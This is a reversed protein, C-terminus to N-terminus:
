EEFSDLDEDTLGDLFRRIPGRDGKINISKALVGTLIEKCAKLSLDPDQNRMHEIMMVAAESQANLLINLATDQLQNLAQIVKPKDLRKRITHRHVGIRKSLETDKINPNEIKLRIIERDTTDLDNLDDTKDVEPNKQIEGM